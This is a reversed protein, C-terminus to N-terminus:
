GGAESSAAGGEERLALARAYVDRRPRGTKAAVASALDRVSDGRALGAALAEDITQDVDAAQAASRGEAEDAAAGAVM